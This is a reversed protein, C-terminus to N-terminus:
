GFDCVCVVVFGTKKNIQMYNEQLSFLSRLEDFPSFRSTCGSTCCSRWYPSLITYAEKKIEVPRRRTMAHIPYAMGGSPTPILHPFDSPFRPNVIEVIQSIHEECITQLHSSMQIHPDMSSIMIPTIQFKNPRPFLVAFEFVRWSIGM